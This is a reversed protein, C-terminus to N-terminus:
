KERGCALYEIYRVATELNRTNYVIGVLGNEGRYCGAENLGPLEQSYIGIPKKDKYFLSGRLKDLLEPELCENLDMFCDTEAYKKYDQELMGCVDLEENGIEVYFRSLSTMAYTGSAAHSFLLSTLVSVKKDGPIDAYEAFDEAMAEEAKTGHSDIFLASLVCEKESAAASVWYATVFVAALVALFPIKYYMWFYEAKEKTSRGKLM